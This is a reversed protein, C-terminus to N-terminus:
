WRGAIWESVGSSCGAVCGAGDLQNEKTKRSRSSGTWGRATPGPRGSATQRLLLVPVQARQGPDAIDVALRSEEEEEGSGEAGSETISLPPHPTPPPDKHQQQQPEPAAIIVKGVKM